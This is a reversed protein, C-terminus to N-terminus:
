VLLYIGEIYMLTQKRDWIKGKFIQYLQLKLHYERQRYSVMMIHKIFCIDMHEFEANVSHFTRIRIQFGSSLSLRKIFLSWLLRKMIRLYSLMDCQIWVMVRQRLCLQSLMITISLAAMNKLNIFIIRYNFCIKLIWSCSHYCTLNYSFVNTPNM